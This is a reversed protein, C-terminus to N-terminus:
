PTGPMWLYLFQPTLASWDPLDLKMLNIEPKPAPSRAYYNPTYDLPRHYAVVRVRSLDLRKKLAGIVERLSAIRDILGLKLAQGASYIRGDALRRVESESLKPRGEVVVKVFREYMENILTQFIEREEDTMPRFPSGIDKRPGSAIAESKVGIMNMTGSIDLTHMIVGISGTVTSPQAVIEDCGCALYYAGSAGVDMMVAVVPKGTKKRFRRLEDYMLESAVVTGGPSNIRLIVAKVAKDRRARDLQEVFLSVPNEGDGFLGSRRANSLVGSVEILAIKDRALRSDRYVTSETLERKVRVPTVLFGTPACGALMGLCVTWVTRRFGKKTWSIRPNGM